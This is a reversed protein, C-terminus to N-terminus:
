PVFKGSLCILHEIAALIEIILRQVDLSKSVNAIVHKCDSM